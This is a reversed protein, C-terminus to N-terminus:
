SGDRWDNGERLGREEQGLKALIAAHDQEKALAIGALEKAYAELIDKDEPSTIDAELERLAQKDENLEAYSPLTNNNTHSM